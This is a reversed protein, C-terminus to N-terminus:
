LARRVEALLAKAEKRSKVVVVPVHAGHKAMAELIEPTETREFNWIYRLFPLDIKEPCGVPLDPRNTGRYRLRRKVVGILCSIRPLRMWIVAEARPLRIDLTGPSTGDLLWAPGRVTEQLLIRIAARDRMNWGPLWFIDRDMPVHPISLASSLERSLTSKGSGSCGIV